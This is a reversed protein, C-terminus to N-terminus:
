NWNWGWNVRAGVGFRGFGLELGLRLEELGLEFGM